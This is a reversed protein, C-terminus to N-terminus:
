KQKSLFERSIVKIPGIGDRWLVFGERATKSLASPGDAAQRLESVRQPLPGVRLIPVRPVDLDLADLSVRRQNAIDWAGFLYLENSQRQYRNSQIKPGIIEGQIAIPGLAKLKEELNYRIAVDKYCSTVEAAPDLLHNRSCYGFEQGNWFATFSTGDLKETWQFADNCLDAYASGLNEVRKADTKPIWSPFSSKNGESRPEDPWQLVSLLETCDSGLDTPLHEFQDDKLFFGQSYVGRLKCTKIRFGRLGDIERFSSKRLSEYRPEEPLFSDVEFLVGRDGVHYTLDVIVEWARDKFLALQIRDAGPIPKLAEIEAVTALQRASEM